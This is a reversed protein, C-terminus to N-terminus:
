PILQKLIKAKIVSTDGDNLLVLDLKFEQWIQHAFIAKLGQEFRFEIELMAEINGIVM